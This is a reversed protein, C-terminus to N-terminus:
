NIDVMGALVKATDSLDEGRDIQSFLSPLFIAHGGMSSMATEFAVRTRTSNKLFIMAMTKNKLSDIIKNSQAEKKLEISRAIIRLFENKNIDLLSKFHRINKNNM